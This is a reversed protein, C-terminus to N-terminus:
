QLSCAADDELLTGIGGPGLGYRQSVIAALQKRWGALRRGRGDLLMELFGRVLGLLRPYLFVLGLVQALWALLSPVLFDQHLPPFYEEIHYAVYTARLLVLTTLLFPLLAIIRVAWRFVAGGVTPPRSMESPVPWLWPLWSPVVNVEPRLLDPYV